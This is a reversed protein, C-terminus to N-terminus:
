PHIVCDLHADEATWRHLTPYQAPALLVSLTTACIADDARKLYNQASTAAHLRIRLDVARELAEKWKDRLAPIGPNQHCLAKLTDAAELVHDLGGTLQQVLTTVHMRLISANAQHINLM